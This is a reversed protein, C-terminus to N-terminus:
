LLWIDFRRLTLARRSFFELPCTARGGRVVSFKGDIILFYLILVSIGVILPVTVFVCFPWCPGVIFIPTGDPHSLLAFMNGIREAFCCFYSHFDKPARGESVQREWQTSVAYRHSIFRRHILPFCFDHTQFPDAAESLGLKTVVNL